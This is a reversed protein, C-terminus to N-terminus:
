FFHVFQCSYNVFAFVCVVRKKFADIEDNMRNVVDKAGCKLGKFRKSDTGYWGAVAKDFYQTWFQDPLGQLPVFWNRAPSAKKRDTM